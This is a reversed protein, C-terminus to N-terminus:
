VMDKSDKAIISMEFLLEKTKNTMDARERSAKNFAANM